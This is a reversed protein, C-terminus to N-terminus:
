HKWINKLYKASMCHNQMKVFVDSDLKLDVVSIAAKIEQSLVFGLLELGGEQFVPVEGAEKNIEFFRSFNPFSKQYRGRLALIDVLRVKETIEVFFKLRKSFRAIGRYEAEPTRDPEVIPQNWIILGEFQSRQEAFEFIQNIVSVYLKPTAVIQRHERNGLLVLFIRRPNQAIDRIIEDRFVLDIKRGPKVNLRIEIGELGFLGARINNFLEGNLMLLEDGYIAVERDM